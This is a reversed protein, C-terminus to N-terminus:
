ESSPEEIMYALCQHPSTKLHYIRAPLNKSLSCSVHSSIHSGALSLEPQFKESLILYRKNSLLDYPVVNNVEITAANSKSYLNITPLVEIKALHPIVFHPADIKFCKLYFHKSERVIVDLFVKISNAFHNMSFNGFPTM